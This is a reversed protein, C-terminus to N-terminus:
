AATTVTLMKALRRIKPPSYGTEVTVYFMLLPLQPHEKMPHAMEELATKKLIAHYRCHVERSHATPAKQPWCWRRWSQKRLINRTHQFKGSAKETNM